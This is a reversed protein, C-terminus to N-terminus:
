RGLRAKARESYEWLLVFHYLSIGLREQIKKSACSEIYKVQRPTMGLLQATEEVSHVFLDTRKLM